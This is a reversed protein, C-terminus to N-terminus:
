TCASAPDLGEWAALRLVERDAESLARLAVALEMDTVLESPDPATASGAELRARDDLRSHRALARRRNAIVFHAARYLWPLPEAPLESINRWAALFTEAVVDQAQDGSVRRRVYALVPGYSATFLETFQRAQRPTGPRHPIDQRISGLTVDPRQGAIGWFASVPPGRARIGL